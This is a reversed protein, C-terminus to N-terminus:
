PAMTSSACLIAELENRLAVLKDVRAREQAIFHDSADPNPMPATCEHDLASRYRRILRTLGNIVVEYDDNKEVNRGEAAIPKPWIDPTFNM